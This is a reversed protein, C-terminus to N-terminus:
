KAVEASLKEKLVQVVFDSRSQWNEKEVKEDIIALLDLPIGVSVPVRNKPLKAM